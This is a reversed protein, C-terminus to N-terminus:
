DSLIIRVIVDNRLLDRITQPVNRARNVNVNLLQHAIGRQVQIHIPNARLLDTERLAVDRLVQQYRETGTELRGRCEPDIWLISDAVVQRHHGRLVFHIRKLSQHICGDVTSSSATRLNEGIQNRCRRHRTGGDNTM